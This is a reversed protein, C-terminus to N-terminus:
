RMDAGCSPCFNVDYDNAFFISQIYTGCETCRQFETGKIWATIWTGRKHEVVDAAPITKLENVVGTLTFSMPVPEHGIYEESRKRFFEQAAERSIYDNPM